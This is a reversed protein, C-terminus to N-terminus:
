DHINSDNDGYNGGVVYVKGNCLTAAHYGRKENLDPGKEWTKTQLQKVSAGDIYEVWSSFENSTLRSPQM